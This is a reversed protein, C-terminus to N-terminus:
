PKLPERPSARRPQVYFFADTGHKYRATEARDIILQIPTGQIIFRSISNNDFVAIVDIIYVRM